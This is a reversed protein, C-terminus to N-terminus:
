IMWVDMRLRHYRRLSDHGVIYYIKIHIVKKNEQKIKTKIRKYLIM